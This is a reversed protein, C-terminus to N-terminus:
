ELVHVLMEVTVPVAPVDDDDDDDCRELLSGYGTMLEVRCLWVVELVDTKVWWLEAPAIDPDTEGSGLMVGKRVVVVVRVRRGKCPLVVMMSDRVALVLQMSVCVVVLVSVQSRTDEAVLVSVRTTSIEVVMVVVVWSSVLAVSTVLM